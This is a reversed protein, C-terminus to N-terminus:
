ENSPTILTVSEDSGGGSEQTIAEESRPLTEDFEPIPRLAVQGSAIRAALDNVKKVYSLVGDTCAKTCSSPDKAKVCASGCSKSLFDERCSWGNYSRLVADFGRYDKYQNHSPESPPCYTALIKPDRADAGNKYYKYREKLLELGVRINCERDYLTQGNKCVKSPLGTHYNRNIQMIGVSSGDWSTLVRDEGCSKDDSPTCGARNKGSEKCCHKGGSEIYILAKIKEIPIQSSPDEPVLQMTKGTGIVDSVEKLSNDVYQSTKQPSQEILVEIPKELFYDYRAKVRIFKTTIGINELVSKDPDLIIRCTFEKYRDIDKFEDRTKIQSIDLEYGNYLIPGSEDGTVFLYNCNQDCSTRTKSAPTTCETECNKRKDSNEKFEECTRLCVEKCSDACYDGYKKIEVFPVPRCSGLDLSVGKPLLVVLENIRKIKGQWEGVSKGNKDTIKNRNTLKIGLAPNTGTSDSAVPILNQISVAIDVPGNTYTTIPKTYTIGYQKFPDIKARILSRQTEKDIFYAIHYASTEFNYTATLEIKNTGPQFKENGISQRFTCETDIQGEVYVSFSREPYVKDYVKIEEPQKVDDPTQQAEIREKERFRYCTFNVVVPDSFTKAGITGLITVDEDTYFRPQVARVDSIYVGLPEFQAKEVQSRYYGGTAYELEREVYSGLARQIMGLREGASAPKVEPIFSYGAPKFINENAAFLLSFTIIVTSGIQGLKNNARWGTYFFVAVMLWPFLQFVGYNKLANYGFFDLLLIVITFIYWIPDGKENNQIFYFGFLTIFVFHGIAKLQLQWASNLLFFSYVFAFLLFMLEDQTFLQVKKIGTFFIIIAILLGIAIYNYLTGLNFSYGFFLKSLINIVLFIALMGVFSVDRKLSKWIIYLLLFTTFLTSTAIMLFLDFNVDWWAFQFGSYRPGLGPIDFIDILSLAFVFIVWWTGDDEEGKVNVNINTPNISSGGQARAQQQQPQPQSRRRDEELAEAHARNMSRQAAKEAIWSRVGM